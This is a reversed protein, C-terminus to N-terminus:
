ESASMGWYDNRPKKPPQQEPIEDLLETPRDAPKIPKAFSPPAAPPAESSKAKPDPADGMFQDFGNLKVMISDATRKVAIYGERELNRLYRYGAYKPFDSLEAVKQVNVLCYSRKCVYNAKRTQVYGDKFYVLSFLTVLLRGKHRESVAPSLLMDLVQRPIKVYSRGWVNTPNAVQDSKNKKM